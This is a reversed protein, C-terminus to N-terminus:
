QHQTLLAPVPPNHMCVMKSHKKCPCLPQQVAAPTDQPRGAQQSCTPACFAPLLERILEILLAAPRLDVLLSTVVAAKGPVVRPSPEARLRTGMATCAYSPCM